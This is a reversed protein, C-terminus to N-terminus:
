GPFDPDTSYVVSDRNSNPNDFIRIGFPMPPWKRAIQSEFTMQLMGVPERVLRDPLTPHLVRIELVEGALLEEPVLWQLFRM